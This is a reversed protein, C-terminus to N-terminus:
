QGAPRAQNNIWKPLNHKLEYNEKWLKKNEDFAEDNIKHMADIDSELCRISRKLQENEAHEDLYRGTSWQLTKRVKTLERFIRYAESGHKM